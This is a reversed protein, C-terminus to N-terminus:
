TESAEGTAPAVHLAAYSHDREEQRVRCLSRACRDSTPYGNGLNKRTFADQHFVSLPNMRRHYDRIGISSDRKLQETIGRIGPPACFHFRNWNFTARKFDIHPQFLQRIEASTGACTLRVM